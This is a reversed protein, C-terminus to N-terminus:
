VIRKRNSLGCGRKMMVDLDALNQQPNPLRNAPFTDGIFVVTSAADRMQQSPWAEVVDAKVGPLNTMHEVCHQIVRGGAAVEHSGPPHNSPGVIILVRSPEAAFSSHLLVFSSLLVFGFLKM